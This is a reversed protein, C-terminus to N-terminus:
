LNSLFENAVAICDADALKLGVGGSRRAVLIFYLETVASMGVGSIRHQGDNTSIPLTHTIGTGTGPVIIINNISPDSTGFVRKVFLAFPSGGVTTSLIASDQSGAGDAGNNGTTEFYSISVPMTAMVFVGTYKATFYRSGPGFATTTLIVKDSYPISSTVNTNLFNGGDFMDNGGDVINTGSTGDTFDYRNPVKPAIGVASSTNTANLSTLLTDLNPVIGRSGTPPRGSSLKGGPFGGGVLIGAPSSM